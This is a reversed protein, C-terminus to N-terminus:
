AFVLQMQLGNLDPKGKRITHDLQAKFGIAATFDYRAGFSPGHRLLVDDNYSSNINTNVYQYRFFPRTHGLRKSFQTYFAPMNYTPGGQEYANRVLFGENLFEIGRAVYVVHANVITQGLRVSPGKEFDSIRDHYVSGGIQLGPVADPRLFFGVNIHNGNNEDTEDVGDMNPRITDSSGYEAIYNLGLKGSPITGTVSLGIAQTPLLGGDNAFEMILPRDATTQLWKGSHFATNYYGVGTHYRGASFKLHDNYDYKFLVRELDVDFSQADGEGIVVEALTSAKDSMRSTLLLDFDGTYFNGASGPVFGFTGLEPVRQDLVKYNVEGFGRWQIGRAEHMEQLLTPTAVADSEATPAPASAQEGNVSAKLELAQVKTQLERVQQVLLRITEKDSPDATQALSFTTLLLVASATWRISRMCTRGKGRGSARALAYNDPQMLCDSCMLFQACQPSM